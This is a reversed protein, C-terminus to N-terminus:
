SQPPGGVRLDGSPASVDEVVFAGVGSGRKCGCDVPSPNTILSGVLLALDHRVACRSLTFRVVSIVLEASM